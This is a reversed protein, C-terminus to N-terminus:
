SCADQLVSGALRGSDAFVCRGTGGGAEGPKTHLEGPTLTITQPMRIFGGGGGGGRRM